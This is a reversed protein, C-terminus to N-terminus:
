RSYADIFKVDIKTVMPRKYFFLRFLYIKSKEDSFQLLIATSHLGDIICSNNKDMITNLYSITTM